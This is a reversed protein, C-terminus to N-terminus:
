EARLFFHDCFDYNSASFMVRNECFVIEGLLQYIYPDTQIAFEVEDALGWTGLGWTGVQVTDTRETVIVINGAKFEIFLEEQLASHSGQGSCNYDQWQWRGLLASEIKQQDWEQKHHCRYMSAKDLYIYIDEQKSTCAYCCFLCTFLIVTNKLM